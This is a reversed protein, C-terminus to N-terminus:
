IHNYFSFGSKQDYVILRKDIFEDFFHCKIESYPRAVEMSVSQIVEPTM